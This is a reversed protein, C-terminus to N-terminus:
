KQRDTGSAPLRRRGLPPKPKQEWNDYKGEAVEQEAVGVIASTVVEEFARQADVLVLQLWWSFMDFPEEAKASETMAKRQSACNEGMMSGVGLWSPERWWRYSDGTARCKAKADCEAALIVVGERVPVRSRSGRTGKNKAQGHKEVTESEAKASESTSAM